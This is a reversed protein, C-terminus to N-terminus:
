AGLGYHARIATAIASAACAAEIRAIATSSDGHMADAGIKTMVAEARARLTDSM